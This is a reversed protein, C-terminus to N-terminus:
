RHHGALSSLLYTGLVDKKAPANPSDYRLPCDDVWSEFLGATKLFQAFFVLQGMPPHRLSASGM